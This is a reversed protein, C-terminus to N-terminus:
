IRKADGKRGGEGEGLRAWVLAGLVIAIGVLEIAVLVEGFALWGVGAGIVPQLLLGLGTVHRPLRGAAFVILGQGAVQAGLALAVLPGWDGPWFRGGDVLAAPLLAAAAITTTFALSAVLPAHARSREIQVLYVTYFAAAVLCLLDGSFHEASLEFSRGLLLGAGLAAVALAAAVRAPPWQGLMAYGWLPFLLSSANAFLSANALTTRAIGLHWAALDAAFALAALILPWRAPRAPIAAEHRIAVLAWWLPAALALRWFASAVPAVDALRVMWPGFALAASGAILAPFAARELRTGM